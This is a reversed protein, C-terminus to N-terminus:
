SQAAALEHMCLRSGTGLTAVARPRQCRTGSGEFQVANLKSKLTPMSSHLPELGSPVHMSSRGPPRHRLSLKATERSVFSAMAAGVPLLNYCAFPLTVRERHELKVWGLGVVSMCVVSTFLLGLGSLTMPYNFHLEKLIRRNVVILTPGILLYLACYLATVACQRREGSQDSVTISDSRSPSPLEEGKADDILSEHEDSKRPTLELPKM